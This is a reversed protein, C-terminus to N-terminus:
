DDDGRRVHAVPPSHKCVSKLLFEAVPPLVRGELEQWPCQGWQEPLDPLARVLSTSFKVCGLARIPRGGKPYRFACWDRPCDMLQAIAGVWPAIDHEILIFGDGSRWLISLWEGYGFRGDCQLVDHAVGEARLALHAPCDNDIAAVVVRM